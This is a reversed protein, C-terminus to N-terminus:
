RPMRLDAASANAAVEGLVLAPPDRDFARLEQDPAIARVRLRGPPAPDFTAVGSHDTHVGGRWAWAFEPHDIPEPVLVRDAVPKGGADLLTVAVRRRHLDATLAVESGAGVVFPATGFVYGSRTDRGPDAFPVYTGPLLWPSVAAGTADTSATIISVGGRDRRAFGAKGHWPMGDVFLRGTVRGPLFASADLDLQQVDGGRLEVTALPLDTVSHSRGDSVRVALAVEYRGAPLAGLQWTGDAAIPGRVTAREAGRRRLQVEGYRGAFREPEPWSLRDVEAARALEQPSPGFRQLLVLPRATGRLVAASVVEIRLASRDAALAVNELHAVCGDSEAILVLGPTDRAARVSTRGAADTTSHDLVLVTAGSSGGRGHRALRYSRPTVAAVATEPLVRALNVEVGPLPRQTAADVVEVQLEAAPLLVVRQSKAEGERLECRLELVEALPVRPFVGVRHVGPALGDFQVIGGDHRVPAVACLDLGNIGGLDRRCRAGFDEVAAGSRGDIVQLRLSAPQRRRVTLKLDNAGWGFDGAGDVLQLDWRDRPLQLTFRQPRGDPAHRLGFLFAGRQDTDATWCGGGALPLELTLDAVPAGATDAVTGSVTRGPPPRRLVVTHTFTAAQLPLEFGGERAGDLGTRIEYRWLGPRCLRRAAVVGSADTRGLQDMGSHAEYDAQLNAYVELGGCPRDPAELVRIRLPTGLDLAVDGVDATVGHRLSPWTRWQGVRADASIELDFSLQTRPVFRLVFTGDAGTQLDPPSQWDAPPEASSTDSYTRLHVTAGVLPAGTEAAVARGRIVTTDAVDPSAVVERRDHPAPSTADTVERDTDIEAAVVQVGASPVAPAMVEARPALELMCWLSAAAAVIGGALWKALVAGGAAAVAGVPLARLVTQRVAVLGRGARLSEGALLTLVAPTLLGKPLAQRLLELGRRLRTRVTEPSASQAHAIDVPRLGHVLRLALVERYPLPLADLASAIRQLTQASAAARDPADLESAHADAIAPGERRRHARRRLDSARHELIGLLWPLVQRRPDYRCADRIAQLFVAQVLDEADAADAMLHMAVLLLNPATHDFVAALAAPDRTRAFRAFEADAPTPM